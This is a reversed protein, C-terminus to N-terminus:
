ADRLANDYHIQNARLNNYASTTENQLVMSMMNM